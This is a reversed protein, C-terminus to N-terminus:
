RTGCDTSALTGAVGLGGDKAIGSVFGGLEGTPAFVTFVEALCNANQNPAAGAGGAFSAVMTTALALSVFFKRARM